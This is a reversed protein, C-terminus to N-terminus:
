VYSKFYKVLEDLEKVVDEYTSYKLAKPNLDYISLMPTLDTIHSHDFGFKNKSRFTIEQPPDEDDFETDLVPHGNPVEVYGNWSLAPGRQLYTKYGDTRPIEYIKKFDPYMDLDHDWPGVPIRIKKFMKMEFERRIKRRTWAQVHPNKKHSMGVELARLELEKDAIDRRLRIINSSMNTNFAYKGKLENKM